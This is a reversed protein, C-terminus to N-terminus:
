KKVPACFSKDVSLAAAYRSMLCRMRDPRIQPRPISYPVIVDAQDVSFRVGVQMPLQTIVSQLNTDRIEGRMVRELISTIQDTIDTWAKEDMGLLQVITSDSLPLDDIARLDEIKQQSTGYPDHRINQIYDLIQRTMDSQQRSVAPNPPFYIDAV